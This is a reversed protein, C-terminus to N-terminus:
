IWGPLENWSDLNTTCSNNANEFLNKKLGHPALAPLNELIPCSIVTPIKRGGSGFTLLVTVSVGVLSESTDLTPLDLRNIKSGQVFPLSPITTLANRLFTDSITKSNRFPNWKPAATNERPLSGNGRFTLLLSRSLSKYWKKKSMVRSCINLPFLMM